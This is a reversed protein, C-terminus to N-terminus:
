DQPRIRLVRGTDDRVWVSGFGVALRVPVGGVRLRGVIRGTRPNVRDIVKSDLDAIWLSGFGLALGIPAVLGKVRGSLRKTRPDVRMVTRTCHGGAAWVAREDAALFACPQGSLRVRATIANTAPDIRVVASLSPVSAWVAGGGATIAMHDSCCARSPAIRINAVVRNTAPDIRSVSPTGKNAVWVAGPTSVIGEPQPGVPITAGVSNDRPDIRLVTDDSVRSIWVADNGAAAEGCSGPLEPCANHSKIKTRAVVANKKPDIRLLMSVADSTAWVAGAGVTLIGSNEPIGIRAVVNGGGSLGHGREFVAASSVAGVGVLCAISGSALIARRAWKLGGAKRDHVSRVPSDCRDHMDVM